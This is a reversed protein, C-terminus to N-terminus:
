STSSISLLTFFKIYAMLSGISSEAPCIKCISFMCDSVDERVHKGMGPDDVPFYNDFAPTVSISVSSADASM